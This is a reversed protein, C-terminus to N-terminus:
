APSKKRKAMTKRTLEAALEESSAPNSSSKSKRRASRRSSERTTTSGSRSRRMMEETRAIEEPTRKLKKKAMTRWYHSHSELVNAHIDFLIGFIVNVDDRDLPLEM